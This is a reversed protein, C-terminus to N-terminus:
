DHSSNHRERLKRRANAMAQEGPVAKVHGSRYESFRWRVEEARTAEVDGIDASDLSAILAGILKAREPLPLEIAQKELEALSPPM